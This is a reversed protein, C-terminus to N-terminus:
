NLLKIYKNLINKFVEKGKLQLVKYKNYQKNSYYKQVLLKYISRTERNSSNNNIKTIDIVDKKLITTISFRNRCLTTTYRSISVLNAELQLNNYDINDKM